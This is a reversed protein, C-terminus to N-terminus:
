MQMAIARVQDIDLNCAKSIMSLYMKMKILNKVTEITNELRGKTTYQEKLQDELQKKLEERM